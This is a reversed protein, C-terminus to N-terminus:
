SDDQILSENNDAPNSLTEDLSSFQNPDISIAINICGPRFM